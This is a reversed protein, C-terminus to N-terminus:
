ESRIDLNEKAADILVRGADPLSIGSNGIAEAVEGDRSWKASRAQHMAIQYNLIAQRVTENKEASAPKEEDMWAHEETAGDVLMWRTPQVHRKRFMEWLNKSDYSSNEPLTREAPWFVMPRMGTERDPHILRARITVFDGYAYATKVAGFSLAYALALVWCILGIYVFVTLIQGAVQAVREISAWFEVMERRKQNRWDQEEREIERAQEADQALVDAETELAYKKGDAVPNDLECGTLFLLVLLAVWLYRTKM